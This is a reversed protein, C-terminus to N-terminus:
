DYFTEQILYELDGLFTEEGYQLVSINEEGIKSIYAKLRNESHESFYPKEDFIDIILATSKGDVSALVRGRKQMIASQEKGGSINALVECNNLSVGKKYIDSAFLIGNEKELFETKIADREVIDDNGSVFTIGTKESLHNGHDKRTIMFLSKLKLRKLIDVLDCVLQNRDGDKVINEEYYELYTDGMKIENNFLVILVKNKVLSGGEILSTESVEYIVDGVVERLSMNGIEDESRFPTASLSMLLNVRSFKRITGLRTKSSFEQVEDIILFKVQKLLTELKRKRLLDAKLEEKNKKRTKKEGDVTKSKTKTPYLIRSITQVSAVNIKKFEWVTEGQLIGIESEEIGFFKSFETVTQNLLDISDVLFVSVDEGLIQAIRISEAATFTKGGRTPIKIIGHPGYPNDFFTKVAELQHSRLMTTFALNSIDIEPNFDSFNSLEYEIGESALFECVYKTLGFAIENKNRFFKKKGDWSHNKFSEAYVAGEIFFTLKKILVKMEKSSTAIFEVTTKSKRKLTVMSYKFGQKAGVQSSIM